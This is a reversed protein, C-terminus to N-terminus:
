VALCLTDPPAACLHRGPDPGAHTKAQGLRWLPCRPVMALPELGGGNPRACACSFFVRLDESAYGAQKAAVSRATVDALQKVGAVYWEGRGLRVGGRRGLVWFMAVEGAPLESEPQAPSCQCGACLIRAEDPLGHLQDIIADLSDMGQWPLPEEPLRVEPCSIAMQETFAQWAGTSGQWYCHVPALTASEGRQERWSVVLHRALERERDSTDAGSIMTLRLVPGESAQAPVLPRQNSSFLDHRQELTVCAPALVVTELMAVTERHYAWWAKLEKQSKHNLGSRHGNGFFYSVLAIILIILWMSGFLAALPLFIFGGWPSMDSLFHLMLWLPMVGILLWAWCSTFSLQIPPISKM